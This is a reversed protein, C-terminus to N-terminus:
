RSREEPCAGGGRTWRTFAAVFAAHSIPPVTRDGGPSWGWLVLGDHGVHHVLDALSREGNQAPDKLQACLAAPTRGEFIMPTKEPPLGWHPAGPPGGVLGITDESNRDAHCTACVLGSAASARTINMAHPVGDDSQLPAEGRPHCNRCRPSLLVRYVDAFALKAEAIDSPSPPSPPRAPAPDPKSPEDPPDAIAVALFASAAVALALPGIAKV